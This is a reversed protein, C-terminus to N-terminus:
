MPLLLVGVALAIFFFISLLDRFGLRALRFFSADSRRYALTISIQDAYHFTRVFLPVVLAVASRIRLM